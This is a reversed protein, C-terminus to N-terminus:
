LDEPTKISRATSEPETRRILAGLIDGAGFEVFVRAGLAHLTRVSETWRVPSALQRELLDPWADGESLFPGPPAALVNAVVTGGRRFEAAALAPRMAEAACAMLPSHFAGSVNLPLVRKAGAVTLAASAAAVAAREGSIVLQGPCNDNAVVVTGEITALTSEVSARDLGLVAAMAGPASEGAEAMLDGRTRVLRAGDRDSLIGAAALAAYEGISHGAFLDARHGRATWARYAAVGCAYLASQAVRTDKLTEDDGEFVLAKLDRGDAAESDARAIRDFTERFVEDADYLARGMGPKQSGQGPFVAATLPAEPM